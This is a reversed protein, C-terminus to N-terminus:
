YGGLLNELWPVLGRQVEVAVPNRTPPRYCIVREEQAASDTTLPSLRDSEMAAADITALTVRSRIM